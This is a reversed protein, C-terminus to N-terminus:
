NKELKSKVFGDFAENVRKFQPIQRMTENWRRVNPYPSIDFGPIIDLWSLNFIASADALTLTDGALYKKGGLKGDMNELAKKVEEKESGESPDKGYFAVPYQFYFM